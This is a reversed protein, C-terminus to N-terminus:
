QEKAAAAKATARDEALRQIIAREAAFQAERLAIERTQYGSGQTDCVRPPEERRGHCMFDVPTGGSHFMLDVSVTFGEYQFELANQQIGGNEM